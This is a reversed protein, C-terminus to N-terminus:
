EAVAERDANAHRQVNHEPALAAIGDRTRYLSGHKGREFGDADGAARLKQMTTGTWKSGGNM